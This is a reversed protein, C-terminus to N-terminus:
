FLPVYNRYQLFKGQSQYLVNFLPTHLSDLIHVVDHVGEDLGIVENFIGIDQIFDDNTDIYENIYNILTELLNKTDSFNLVDDINFGYEHETNVSITPQVNISSTGFDSFLPLYPSNIYYMNSGIKYRREYNVTKILINDAKIDEHFFGLKYRAVALAYYLEFTICIIDYPTIPIMLNQLTTDALSMTFYLLTSHWSNRLIPSIHKVEWNTPPSSCLFWNKIDIFCPTYEPQIINKLINCIIHLESISYKNLATVKLALREGSHYNKIEYVIGYASFDGIQRVFYYQTNFLELCESNYIDTIDPTDNCTHINM